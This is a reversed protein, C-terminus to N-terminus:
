GKSGVKSFKCWRRVMSAEAAEEEEVEEEEVKELAEEEAEAEAKVRGEAEEGRMQEAVQAVKRCTSSLRIGTGRVELMKPNTRRHTHTHTHTHTHPHICALMCAHMYVYM